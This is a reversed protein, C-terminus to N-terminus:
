LTLSVKPIQVMYRPAVRTRRRKPSSRRIPSREKREVTEKHRAERNKERDKDREERRRKRDLEDM